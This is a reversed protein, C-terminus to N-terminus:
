SRFPRLDLILLCRKVTPKKRFHNETHRLRKTNAKRTVGHRATATRGQMSYIGILFFITQSTPPLPLSSNFFHGVGEGATM